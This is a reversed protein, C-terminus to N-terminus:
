KINEWTMLDEKLIPTNIPQVPKKLDNNVRIYNIKNNFIYM